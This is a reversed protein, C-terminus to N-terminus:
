ASRPGGPPVVLVPCPAHRVVREATSGMLARMLGSRGHTAIIIIDAKLKRASSVIQDYAIGERVHVSVKAIGRCERSAVKELEGKIRKPLDQTLVPMIVPEAGFPASASVPEVVHLLCLEAGFSRAWKGAFRVASMSPPSFDLPVLIRKLRADITPPLARTKARKGPKTKEGLGELGSAAASAAFGGALAGVPGAIAAGLAAGVATEVIKRKM